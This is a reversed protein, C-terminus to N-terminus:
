QARDKIVILLSGLGCVLAGTLALYEQTEIAMFIAVTSGTIFILKAVFSRHLPAMYYGAVVVFIASVSSSFVMVSQLFFPYWNAHCWGSVIQESPCFADGATLIAIGLFVAIYWAAWTAPVLLIWRIITSDLKM